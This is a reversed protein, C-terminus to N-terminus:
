AGLQILSPVDVADVLLAEVFLANCSNACPVRTRIRVPGFDYTCFGDDGCRVVVVYHAVGCDFLLTRKVRELLGPLQCHFPRISVWVDLGRDVDAVFCPTSTCRRIAPAARAMHARAAAPQTVQM